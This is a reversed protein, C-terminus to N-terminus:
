NVIILMVSNADSYCLAKPSIYSKDRIYQGFQEQKKSKGVELIVTKEEYM